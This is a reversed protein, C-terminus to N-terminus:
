DKAWRLFGDLQAQGVREAQRQIKRGLRPMRALLGTWVEDSIVKTHDPNDGDAEFRFHHRAQLLASGGGWVIEQPADISFIDVPAALRMFGTDIRMILRDGVRLVREPGSIPRFEPPMFYRWNRFDIFTAFLKEPTGPVQCAARAVVSM